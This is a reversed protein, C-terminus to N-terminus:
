VEYGELFSTIDEPKVKRPLNGLFIRRADDVSSPTSKVAVSASASSEKSAKTAEVPAETAVSSETSSLIESMSM